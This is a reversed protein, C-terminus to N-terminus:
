AITFRMSPVARVYKNYLETCDNKFSKSDFRNTTVEIYRCKYEGIIMEETKREIMEQKLSDELESIRKDLEDRKIKLMKIERITKKIEKNEKM